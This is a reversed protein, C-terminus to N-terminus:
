NGEVNKVPVNKFHGFVSVRCNVMARHGTTQYNSAAFMNTKVCLARIQNLVASIPM